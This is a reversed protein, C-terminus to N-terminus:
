ADADRRRRAAEHPLVFGARKAVQRVREHSVGFLVGVATLTGQPLVKDRYHRRLYTEIPNVPHKM